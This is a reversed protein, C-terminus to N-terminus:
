DGGGDDNGRDIERDSENLSDMLDSWAGQDLWPLDKQEFTDALRLSLVQGGSRVEVVVWRVNYLMVVDGVTANRRASM